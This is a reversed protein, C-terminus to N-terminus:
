FIPRTLWQPLMAGIRGGAFHYVGWLVLGAYISSLVDDIVIGLGTPLRQLGRAPFPKLIDSVRNLLFALVLYALSPPAFAATIPLGVVEDIVVPHPDKTQFFREGWTAIPIAVAACLVLFAVRLPWGPLGHMAALLLYGPLTGFTGPAVPALGLGFGTTLCWMVRQALGQPVPTPM